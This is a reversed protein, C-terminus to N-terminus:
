ARRRRILLYTAALVALLAASGAIWPWPVGGDSKQEAAPAEAGAPQTAPKFAERPNGAGAYLRLPRRDTVTTGDTLKATMAIDLLYTGPASFTWNGHV